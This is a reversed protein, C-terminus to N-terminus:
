KRNPKRYWCKCSFFGAFIDGDQEWDESIMFNHHKEMLDLNSHAILQYSYGHKFKHSHWFSLFLLKIKKM